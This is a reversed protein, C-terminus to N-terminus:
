FIYQIQDFYNHRLQVTLRAGTQRHWGEHKPHMRDHPYYTGLTNAM